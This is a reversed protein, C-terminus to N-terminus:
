RLLWTYLHTAGSIGRWSTLGLPWCSKSTQLPTLKLLMTCPTSGWKNQAMVDAGTDLEVQLDATTATKWWNYDYLKSM